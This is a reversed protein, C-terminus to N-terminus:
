RAPGPRATLWTELIVQAAVADCPQDRGQAALRHQAERSSLREDVVHVPLRFRGELQRIFRQIPAAMEHESGDVRSPMGVVLVDPEWTEVLASLAKWDPQNKLAPVTAVPSATASVTQGVAVGIRRTGFDFGLAQLCSHSM